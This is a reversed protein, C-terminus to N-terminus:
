EGGSYGFIGTRAVRLHEVIVAGSFIFPITFGMLTLIPLLANRLAHKYVVVNESLGKARATRLFDHGLVELLSARMYRAIGAIDSLGLTISPLFCTSCM